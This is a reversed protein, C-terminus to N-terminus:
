LQLIFSHRQARCHLALAPPPSLHSEIQTQIIKEIVGIPLPLFPMLAQSFPSWIRYILTRPRVAIAAEFNHAIQHLVNKEASFRYTSRSQFREKISVAERGFSLSPARKSDALRTAYPQECNQAVSLKRFNRDSFNASDSKEAVFNHCQGVLSKVSERSHICSLGSSFNRGWCKWVCFIKRALIGSLRM